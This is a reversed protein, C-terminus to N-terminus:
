TFVLCRVDTKSSYLSTFYNEIKSLIQNEDTIIEGEELELDSIVRRSYNREEFM